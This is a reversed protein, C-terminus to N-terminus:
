QLQLSFRPCLFPLYLMVFAAWLASTAEHNMTSLRDIVPTEEEQCFVKTTTAMTRHEIQKRRKNKQQIPHRRLLFVSSLSPHSWVSSRAFIFTARSQRCQRSQRSVSESLEWSM